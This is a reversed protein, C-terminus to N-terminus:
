CTLATSPAAVSGNPCVTSTVEISEVGVKAIGEFTEFFVQYDNTANLTSDRVIGLDIRGMDLFLWTGEAFLFWKVEAPWDSLAAAAQAGFVQGGGTEGDMYFSPQVRFERLLAEVGAQDRSFRDFQGSVIDAVLMDVAWSPIISRLVRDPRMRNRSRYAAAALLIHRLLTSTAGYEAAGTVQTSGDSLGDLLGVEANEAHAVQVLEGIASVQEPWARAGMNGYQVCGAIADVTASQFDDCDVVLCAKTASSGGAADQAATIRTIAGRATSLGIPTPFTIGGRVAQFTALADRVPRDADSLIPLDYRPTLPACLGGSAVLAEPRVVARIKDMTGDIDREDLQREAPYDFQASAVIIKDSGNRTTGVRQAEILLDGMRDRTLPEGAEFGRIGASALLPAGNNAPQPKPKHQASPKPPRAFRVPAAAAAVAEPEEVVAEPEVPEPEPDVVVAESEVVAEPDEPDAPDPDDPTEAVAEVAALEEVGETLKAVEAAFNEQATVRDAQEAKIADYQERGTKLAALVESASLEGLFEADTERIKKLGEVHSANLATLEDDTLDKLEAPLAAFLPKM